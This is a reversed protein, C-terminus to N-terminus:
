FRELTGASNNLKLHIEATAGTPFLFTARATQANPLNITIEYDGYFARESAAGESSLTGSSETHWKKFFLNKLVEFAAKPKYQDDLLGSGDQWTVPGIGWMNIVDVAPHSFCVTYFREYYEAQLEDTWNGSRVPGTIPQNQPVTFESVHIRVDEKAFGDLATYMDRADPWLGFPRHGHFAFYDVKVGKSKLWQIDALGRFMDQKSPSRGNAYFQACHSIGLKIDPNIKRIAEFVPVSSGLLMQENVVQWYPIRSGYRTVMDKSHELFKAAQESTSKRRLWMPEYGSLFHFEPTAHAKECFDLYMDFDTYDRKGEVAEIYGWKGSFGIQSYNFLQQFATLERPDVAPPMFSEIKPADPRKFFPLSCGFGFAHRTQNLRYPLDALPNGAEDVISIKLDGKRYKEINPLCVESVFKEQTQWRNKDPSDTPIEKEKLKPLYISYKSNFNVRELNRKVGVNPLVIHTAGLGGGDEGRPRCLAILQEDTYTELAKGEILLNRGAVDYQLRDQVRQMANWWETGFDATFYAQTGDRWEAAVARDSYIRFGGPRPPTLFVADIPTHESAWRQTRVWPDNETEGPGASSYLYHTVAAVSIVGTAIVVGRSIQALKLWSIGWLLGGVCLTIMLPAALPEAFWGHWDSWIQRPGLGFVAGGIGPIAFNITRWAVLCVLLAMSALVAKPVSLRGLGIAVITALLVVWPLLATQTPLALVILALLGLAIFIARRRLKRTWSRDCRMVGQKLCQAIGYAIHAFAVVLFLRSARFLQARMVAPWPWVESFITGAIFLLLTAAAVALSKRRVGADRTFGLSLGALATILAFRPVDARGMAWWSSPFSHDASRIRTITVWKADFVQHHGVMLFITPLAAMIFLGVLMALTKWPMRGRYAEWGAWTGFMALLYVATLAHLNFIAGALAFAGAIGRAGGRYLLLIAAISLPFVAWTHTFGTSYFDDGGLARHHGAVLMLVVIGGSLRDSFMARTLGAMAALVAFATLLHLYFYADAVKGGPVVRALLWFFWTPYDAATKIVPDHAFLAPNQFHRLFPIQITQNGVGLEYGAFLVQALALLAFAILWQARHPRSAFWDTWKRSDLAPAALPLARAITPYEPEALELNMPVILETLRRSNL